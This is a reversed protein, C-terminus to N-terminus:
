SIHIGRRELVHLWLLTALSGIPTIKPGLDSSIINAYLMAPRVLEGAHTDHISLMGLLVGPLNNTISSLFASILGVGISAPWVGSDALLQFLGSLWQTLGANRLALVVLYMGLSFLVIHWPAHRLVKRTGVVHNRGAVLLLIVAGSGAVASTPVHFRDLAFFGALTALLVIWGVHFTLRDRIADTPPTLRTASYSRPLKRGFWIHLVLLSAAIAVIDVPLM